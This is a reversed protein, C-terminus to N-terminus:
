GIAKLAKGEEPYACDPRPSHRGLYQLAFYAIRKLVSSVLRSPKNESVRWKARTEIQM